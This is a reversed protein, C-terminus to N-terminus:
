KIPPSLPYDLFYNVLKDQLKVMGKSDLIETPQVDEIFRKADEGTLHVMNLNISDRITVHGKDNFSYTFRENPILNNLNKM